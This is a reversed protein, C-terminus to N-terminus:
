QGLSRKRLSDRVDRLVSDWDGAQPQRYLRASDYWPSDSRELLWRWDPVKPLLIWVEKGLAGALHAVSTDVSVVLDMQEVLAATDGFDQLETEFSRIEPHAALAERDATRIEKQLCFYEIGPLLIEQFETFPISRNRDNKHITSGSWVLGVRPARREGVIKRWIELKKPDAQLYPKGSIDDLETKFALPLSLLPCQCDFAPLEGETSALVAVGKLGKLVPILAAPVGLVVRAGLAAVREAYRCFQLTDGLGQEAHLLITKGQLDEAGLWLPQKFTPATENLETRQWRWEYQAWARGYDGLLFRTLSQNWHADAHDPKLRLANDFSALAEAFRGLDHLTSGRNNWAEVYDPRLRLAQDYSDIAADFRCLMKLANGRNLLAEPYAPKIVIARDCSALAEEMRGLSQLVYARNLHAEAFGPQLAIARDLNRLVQNPNGDRLYMRCLDQRAPELDPDIAVADELHRMAEPLNGQMETVMGLLYHADASRPNLQTARVLHESAVVPQGLEKLAFGLNVCADANAADAELAAEYLRVAEATQGRALLANGQRIADTAAEPDGRVPTADRKFWKSLFSM